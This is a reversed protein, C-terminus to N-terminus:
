VIKVIKAGELISDGEKVYVAVVKGGQEAEIANEMKMAELTALRQGAVVNDGVKVNVYTIVGPLPSVITGSSVKAGNLSVNGGQIFEDAHATAQGLKVNLPIVVPLPIEGYPRSSRNITIIGSEKDSVKRDEPADAVADEADTDKSSRGAFLKGVLAYSLYLLVLVSFVVCICTLALSFGYPGLLNSM